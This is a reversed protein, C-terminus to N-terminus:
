SLGRITEVLTSNIARPGTDQRNKHRREGPLRVGDLGRLRDVFGEAHAEWGDGAIVAPSLALIMEGGRPPGGDGNDAEAAEFSFREGTLGAALLEVMLAIASGKYGGFPLLVGGGAIKAPDTTPRGEADLGTGEPVSKGDREAIMVDGMAMSATAMDYCLPTAGPRPWAFSIPNTGFLKETSGAPAVAPMYATCAIGVLGRDALFETEPWLAAFHHIGTLSLAAAGTDAAAEALVPLGVAQALPAFCGGGDVHVVSPTRRTVKPDAKGDVKGSRLAKVYGPVRFLGHSHSGDREARMVIDALADANADNCGNALMADRALAYIEELSLDTTTM